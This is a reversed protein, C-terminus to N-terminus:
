GKYIVRDQYKANEFNNFYNLIKQYEKEFKNEM